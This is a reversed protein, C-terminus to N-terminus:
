SLKRLGATFLRRGQDGTNPSHLLVLGLRKHGRRVSAVLCHGAKNTLGTKIGTVGRFGLRMLPNNNVLFLKHHKIPFSRAARHSRVIRALRREHLVARALLALDRACSHNRDDLGDASVFHTCSLGLRRAEANM